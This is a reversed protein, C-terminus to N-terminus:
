FKAKVDKCITHIDHLQKTFNSIYGSGSETFEFFHMLSFLLCLAGHMNNHVNFIGFICLVAYGM